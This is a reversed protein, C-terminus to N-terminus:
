RERSRVIAVSCPAHRVVAEAVSGIMLRRLGSRGHSSMVVLDYDGQELHQLTGSVPRGPIVSAILDGDPGALRDRLAQTNRVANDRIEDVLGATTIGAEYVVPIPEMWCHLLEVAADERALANALELADDTDDSLDTPLLVSRFGDRVEPGRAVLVSTPCTRVVKEAVSGLLLRSFGTRGRSGVVVLDARLQEAAQSLGVDAPSDALLQSVEAGQGTLKQHLEALRDHSQSMAERLVQRFEEAHGLSQEHANLQAQTMPYCHVLIVEAGLHRALQMAQRVAVASEMSFDTGVAIRRIQM